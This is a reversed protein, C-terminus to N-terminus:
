QQKTFCRVVLFRAKLAPIKWPHPNYVV